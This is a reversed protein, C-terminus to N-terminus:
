SAAQPKEDQAIAEALKAVHAAFESFPMWCFTQSVPRRGREVGGKVFCTIEAFWEGNSQTAVCSLDGAEEPEFKRGNAFRGDADSICVADGDEGDRGVHFSLGDFAPLEILKDQPSNGNEGSLVREWERLNAEAREAKRILEDATGDWEIEVWRGASEPIHLIRM